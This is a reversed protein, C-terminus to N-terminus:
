KGTQNLIKTIRHNHTDVVLIDGNGALALGMPHNFTRNKYDFKHETIKKGTQDLVVVRQGTPDSVWLKGTSDMTIYPEVFVEGEWGDFNFGNLFNGDTDFVQIRQNRTDNVYLKGQHVCIGIPGDLEGPQNGLKGWIKILGGEKNLKVIRNNGTDAVYVFTKDVAIGRPYFLTTGRMDRFQGIFTGKKDFKQIRNNFTDVVYVFQADAAVDCIDQFQGQKDGSTGWAKLWEGDANFEQIRHNRFDAVFVNGDPDVGLSRPENFQGRAEGIGGVFM